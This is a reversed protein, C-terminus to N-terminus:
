RGAGARRPAFRTPRGREPLNATLDDGVDDRRQRTGGKILSLLVALGLGVLGGIVAGVQWSPSSPARPVEPVALVSAQGQYAEAAVRLQQQRQVFTALQTAAASVQAQGVIDDERPRVSARPQLDAILPSLTEAQAQLRRVGLSRNYGVYADVVANALTAARRADPDQASIRLVDSGTETDVRLSALLERRSSRTSKMVPALVGDSLVIDRQTVLTREPDGGGFGAPSGTLAETQDSHSYLLEASSTYRAPQLFYFAGLLLGGMLALLPLLRWHARVGAMPDVQNM